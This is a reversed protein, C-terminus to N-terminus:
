NNQAQSITALERMGGRRGAKYGKANAARVSKGSYHKSAFWSQGNMLNITFYQPTIRQGRLDGRQHVPWLAGEGGDLGFLRAAARAVDNVADPDSGPAIKEAEQRFFDIDLIDVIAAATGAVGATASIRGIGALLLRALIAAFGMSSGGGGSYPIPVRVPFVM